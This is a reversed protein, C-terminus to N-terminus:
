ADPDVAIGQNSNPPSPQQCVGNPDIGLGCKELSPKPASAENGLWLRSIWELASDIWGPIATPGEWRAAHAPAALGLVGAFALAVAASRMGKVTM